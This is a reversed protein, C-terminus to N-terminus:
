PAARCPQRDKFLQVLKLNKEALEKQGSASALQAAKQATAVAEDFRGAEAYAAALTGVMMPEKYDTVRCAHEALRVAEASDRFQADPNAARIWALNNLAESSAPDLRLAQTYHAIAEAMRGGGLSAAALECYDRPSGPPHWIGYPGVAKHLAFHNTVAEFLPGFFFMQDPPPVLPAVVYKPPRDLLDNRRDEIYQKTLAMRVVSPYRFWPTARAACYIPTDYFDLVAVGKGDPAIARLMSILNHFDEVASADTRPLGCIDRPELILSIETRPTDDFAWGLLGPYRRFEPKTLLLLLLGTAVAAPFFSRQSPGVLRQWGQVILATLVVAFPVMEHMVNFPHSRGVFVLLSALGYVAVAALLVEGKTACWEVARIIAFAIVALYVLAIIAFFILPIEPLEAIPLAGLGWSAYLILPELWGRWFGGTFLGGRSAYLLLLLLTLASVVLVVLFAWAGRRTSPHNEGPALGAQLVRYVAFTALLYIGTETEFFVALGATLGTLGLWLTRGSRQYMLLGLFFWVDMPHRMLTSSPYMWIIDNVGLGSFIQWCIALGVAVAAWLEREFCLRLALFLAIYYVCAYSVELVLLNGYTLASFQSLCSAVLPWGIGYQSFIETGFAKGHAFSLAPGMVFFDLSHCADYQFAQGALFVASGPPMGIVLVFIVPVVYRLVANSHGRRRGPQDHSGGAASFGYKFDVAACVLAMCAPLLMRLLDFTGVPERAAVMRSDVNHSFWYSCLLSLFAAMSTAALVAMLAASSRMFNAVRAAACRALRIRWWWWTGLAAALTLAIGAVYIGLDHEPRVMGRGYGTLREAFSADGAPGLQLWATVMFQMGLSLAFALTGLSCLRYYKLEVGEPLPIPPVKPFSLKM